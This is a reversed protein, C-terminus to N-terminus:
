GFTITTEGQIWPSKRMHTCVLGNRFHGVIVLTSLSPQSHFLGSLIPAMYYSYTINFLIFLM